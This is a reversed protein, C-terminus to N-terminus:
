NGWRYYMIMLVVMTAALCIGNLAWATLTVYIVQHPLPYRGFMRYHIWCCGLTPIANTGQSALLVYWCLCLFSWYWQGQWITSEAMLVCAAVFSYLEYTSAELNEDAVWWALLPAGRSLVYHWADM